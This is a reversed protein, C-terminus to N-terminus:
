LDELSARARPILVLGGWGLRLGLRSKWTRGCAGGFSAGALGLCLRREAGVTRPRLCLLRGGVRPPRGQSCWSVTVMRVPFGRGRSRGGRRSVQGTEPAGVEPQIDEM